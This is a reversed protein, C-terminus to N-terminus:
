YLRNPRWFGPRVVSTHEREQVQDVGDAVYDLEEVDDDLEATLGYPIQEDQLEEFGEHDLIGAESMYAQGLIDADPYCYGGNDKSAIDVPLRQRQEQQVYISPGSFNPLRSSRIDPAAFRVTPVQATRSYLSHRSQRETDFLRASPQAETRRGKRTRAQQSEAESTEKYHRLTGGSEVLKHRGQGSHDGLVDTATRRRMSELRESMYSTRVSGETGPDEKRGAQLHGQLVPPMSSPSTVDEYTHHNVARNVLNTRRPFPSSQPLSQSRLMGPPMLAVSPMRFRNSAATVRDGLVSSPPNHHGPTGSGPPVQDTGRDQADVCKAQDTTADMPMGPAISPARISESWSFYSASEHRPGRSAFGLYSAKNESEVTPFATGPARSPDRMPRPHDAKSGASLGTPREGKARINGDTDALAPRTVTFFASIDEEKTRAHDKKRKKKADPAQTTDDNGAHHNRLFKMESFVLDPVTVGDTVRQIVQSEARLSSVAAVKLRLPPDVKASSGLTTPPNSSCWHDTEKLWTPTNDMTRVTLRDRSINKAQFEQGIGNHTKEDKRRRFKRKSKKSESKRSPRQGADREKGRKPEVDYKDARTKRRPKRAYRQSAHSSTSRGSTSHSTDSLGENIVDPIECRDLKRATNGKRRPQPSAAKLLSSDSSSRKRRRRADLVTDPQRTLLFRGDEPQESSVPDETEALWKRIDM